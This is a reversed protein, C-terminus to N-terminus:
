LAIGLLADVVNRALAPAGDDPGQDALAAQTWADLAALASGTDLDNALAARVEALM